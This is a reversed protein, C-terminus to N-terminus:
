NSDCRGKLKCNEKKKAKHVEGMNWSTILASETPSPRQMRRWTRFYGTSVRFTTGTLSRPKTFDTSLCQRSSGPDLGTVLRERCLTYSKRGRCMLGVPVYINLEYRATFVGDRNCFSTVKHQIPLYNSNRRLDVCFVYICQTPLVYFQQINFQHYM